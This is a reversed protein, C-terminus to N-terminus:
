KTKKERERVTGDPSPISTRQDNLLLHAAERALRRRNAEKTYLDAMQATKWGFIAMLQHVTAGNDACRTAAIKRVGHASKKVGAARAAKSFANGFSEKTLPRGKAGCVFTLDSTPGAALTIALAPLIPLTVEIEENGKQTRFQLVDGGDMRRVHQRGVIATDGRRAGIFCLVDFWVREKTGIPWRRMYVEADAETWAAFGPGKKRKPNQVAATPDIRSHKAALAWRFLGRMADLFHRAQHPTAARRDRGAAITEASIQAYPMTGASAIVHRYINERQRRTAASLALWAATERYRAILWALTDASETPKQPAALSKGALAADYADNFEKSGYDGHIRTRRGHGKRVYWVTKGHQTRQQHLHPPRPRPVDAM